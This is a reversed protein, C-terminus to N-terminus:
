RIIVFAETKEVKSFTCCSLIEIILTKSFKRPNRAADVYFTDWPEWTGVFAWTHKMHELVIAFSAETQLLAHIFPSAVFSRNWSILM